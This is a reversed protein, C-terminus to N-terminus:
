NSQETTNGEYMETGKISEFSEKHLFSENDM